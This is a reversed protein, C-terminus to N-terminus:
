KKCTRIVTGQEILQKIKRNIDAESFKTKPSIGHKMELKAIQRSSLDVLVKGDIVAKGILDFADQLTSASDLQDILKNYEKTSKFQIANALERFIQKIGEWAEKLFRSFVPKNPGEATEMLEAQTKGLLTVFTEKLNDQYSNGTKAYKETIKQFEPHMQVMDMLKQFLEPNQTEIIDILIHGAEHLPTDSTVLDMNLYIVGQNVWGKAKGYIGKQNKVMQIKVGPFAQQIVKVMANIKQFSEARELGEALQFSTMGGNEDVQTLFNTKSEKLQEIRPLKAGKGAKLLEYEGLDIPTMKDSWKMVPMIKDSQFLNVPIESSAQYTKIKEWVPKQGDSTLRYLITKSKGEEQVRVIRYPARNKTKITGGEIATDTLDKFYKENLTERSDDLSAIQDNLGHFQDAFRKVVKFAKKKEASWDSLEQLEEELKGDTLTAKLTNGEDSIKGDNEPYLIALSEDLDKLLQTRKRVLPKIATEIAKLEKAAEENFSFKQDALKMLSPNAAVRSEQLFAMKRIKGYALQEIPKDNGGYILGVAESGLDAGTFEPVMEKNTLFFNHVFANMVEKQFLPGTNSELSKLYNNYSRYVEPSVFKIIGHKKFILGDTLLMYMFFQDKVDQPLRRFSNMMINDQAPDFNHSQKIELLGGDFTLEDIFINNRTSESEKLKKLRNSFSYVFAVRDELKSFDFTKEGIKTKVPGAMSFGELYMTGMQQYFAHDIKNKYFAKSLVNRPIMRELKSRFRMMSETYLLHSETKQIFNLHNKLSAMLNPNLAVVLRPDIFKNKWERQLEPMSLIKGGKRIIRRYSNVFEKVQSFKTFGLGKMIKEFQARQEIPTGKIQDSVKTVNQLERFDQAYSQLVNLLHLVYSKDYRQQNEENQVYFLSDEFSPGNFSSIREGEIATLENLSYNIASAMPMVSYFAAGSDSYSEAKKFVAMVDPHNFFNAMTEKSFGMFVMAAQIDGNYRKLNLSGMTLHKANDIASNTLTELWKYVFDGNLSREPILGGLKDMGNQSPNEQEIKLNPTRFKEIDGGQALYQMKTIYAYSYTKGMLASSGTMTTGVANNSRIQNLTYLDDANYGKGQQFDLRQRQKAVGKVFEMSSDIDSFIEKANEPNSLIDITASLMDEAVKQNSGFQWMMASDGDHDSGTIELWEGPVFMGNEHGDMFARVRFVTNSNKGTNPIRSMVGYLAKNMEHYAKAIEHLALFASNYEVPQGSHLKVLNELMTEYALAEQKLKDRNELDDQSTSEALKASLKAKKNIERNINKIALNVAPNGEWNIGAFNRKLLNYVRAVNPNFAIEKKASKKERLQQYDKAELDLPIDMGNVQVSFIERLTKDGTGFKKAFFNGTIIETQNIKTPTASAYRLNRKGIIGSAMLEEHNPFKKKVEALTMPGMPTEYLYVLNTAPLQIGKFGNVRIGIGKNIKASIAGFMKNKHLPNSISQEKPNEALRYGAGFDGQREYAKRIIDLAWGRVMEAEDEIGYDKKMQQVEYAIQNANKDSMMAIAKYTEQVSFHNKDGVIGLLYLMQSSLAIDKDNIESTLDLVAGFGTRLDRRDYVLGSLYEDASLGSQTLAQIPNPNIRKLTSKTSGKPAVYMAPESIIAGAKRADLYESLVRREARARSGSAAMEEQYVDWLSVVVGQGRSIKGEQYMAKLYMEVEPGVNEMLEPTLVMSLAKDYDVNGSKLDVNNLTLKILPKIPFGETNGMSNKALSMFLSSAHILGDDVTIKGAAFEERLDSLQEFLENSKKQIQTLEEESVIEAGQAIAELRAQLNTYEANLVNYNSRSALIDQMFAPNSGIQQIINETNLVTIQGNLGDPAVNVVYDRGDEDKLNLSQNFVFNIKSTGAGTMRKSYEPMYGAEISEMGKAPNFSHIEGFLVQRLMLNNVRHNFYMDWLAPHTVKLIDFEQNLQKAKKIEDFKFLAPHKSIRVGSDSEYENLFHKNADAYESSDSLDTKLFNNGTSFTDLVYNAFRKFKDIEQAMFQEEDVKLQEMILQNLRIKGNISQWVGNQPLLLKAQPNQAIFADMQEDVQRFIEAIVYPNQENKIQARVLIDKKGKNVGELKVKFFGNTDQEVIQLLINRATNHRHRFANGLVKKSSADLGLGKEPNFGSKFVKKMKILPLYGRDAQIDVPHWYESSDFKSKQGDTGALAGSLLTRLFEADTLDLFSKSTNNEWSELTQFQFYDSVSTEGAAITNKYFPSFLNPYREELFDKKDGSFDILSAAEHENELETALNKVVAIREALPTNIKDKNHKTGAIFESNSGSGIRSTAVVQGIKNFFTSFKTPTYIEQEVDHESEGRQEERTIEKPNDKRENSIEALLTKAAADFGGIFSESANSNVDAESIMEQAMILYAMITNEVFEARKEEVEQRKLKDNESTHRLYDRAISESINFGMANLLPQFDIADFVKTNLQNKIWAKRLDKYVGNQVFANKSIVIEQGNIKIFINDKDFRLGFAQDPNAFLRTITNQKMLYMAKEGVVTKTFNNHLFNSNIENKVETNRNSHTPRMNVGNSGISPRVYETIKVTSYSSILAVVVDMHRKYFAQTAPDDSYKNGIALFSDTHNEIEQGLQAIQESLAEKVKEDQAANLEAILDALRLEKVDKPEPNFYKNWVAKMVRFEFSSPASSLELLKQRYNELFGQTDFKGNKFATRNVIDVMINSAKEMSITQQSGPLLTAGLHFKVKKNMTKVGSLAGRDALQTIKNDQETDADLQSLEDDSIEVEFEFEAGKKFDYFDFAYEKIQDFLETAKVYNRAALLDGDAELQESTLASFLEYAKKLSTVQQDPFYTPVLEELIYNERLQKVYDSAGAISYNKKQNELFLEENQYIADLIQFRFYESEDDFIEKGNILIEDADRGWGLDNSIAMISRAYEKPRITGDYRNYIATSLSYGGEELNQLIANFESYNLSLRRWIARIAQFLSRLMPPMKAIWKSGYSGFTNEYREALYEEVEDRTFEKGPFEKTLMNAGENMVRQYSEPTLIENLLKHFVEHRLVKESVKGEKSHLWLLDKYAQGITMEGNLELMDNGFQLDKALDGILNQTLKEAQEFTLLQNRRDIRSATGPFLPELRRGKKRPGVFRAATKKALSPDSGPKAPTASFSSGVTKSIHDLSVVTHPMMPLVETELFLLNLDSVEAGSNIGPAIEKAPLINTFQDKKGQVVPNYTPYKTEVNRIAPNDFAEEAVKKLSPTSRVWDFFEVIEGGKIGGERLMASESIKINVKKELNKFKIYDIKRQRILKNEEDGENNFWGFRSVAIQKIYSNQSTPSMGKFSQWNKLSTEYLDKDITKGSRAERLNERLKDSRSLDNINPVGNVTPIGHVQLNNFFYVIMKDFKEQLQAKQAANKESGIKKEIALLANAVRRLLYFSQNANFLADIKKGESIVNGDKDIASGTNFSGNLAMDYDAFKLDKRQLYIININHKMALAHLSGAAVWEKKDELIKKVQYDTHFPSVAIFSQGSMKSENKRHVDVMLPSIGYGMARMLDISQGLNLREAKGTNSEARDKENQYIKNHANHNSLIPLFVQKVPTNGDIRVKKLPNAQVKSLLNAYNDRYAQVSENGLQSEVLASNDTPPALNAIIMKKNKGEADPYTAVINLYPQKEGRFNEVYPYDSVELEFVVQEQISAPFGHKLSVSTHGAKQYLTINRFYHNKKAFESAREGPVLKGNDITFLSKGASALSMANGYALTFKEKLWQITKQFLSQSPNAIEQTHTSAAEDPVFSWEGYKDVFENFSITTQEMDDKLIRVFEEGKANTRYEARLQQGKYFLTVAKRFIFADHLQFRQSVKFDADEDFTDEEKIEEESLEEKILKEKLKEEDQVDPQEEELDSDPENGVEEMPPEVVGNAIPDIIKSEIFEFVNEASRFEKALDAAEEALRRFQAFLDPNADNDGRNNKRYVYTGIVAPLMGTLLARSVPERKQITQYFSKVIDEVSSRPNEEIKLKVFHTLLEIQSKSLTGCNKLSKSM